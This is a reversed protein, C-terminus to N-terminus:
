LELPRAFIAGTWSKSRGFAESLSGEEITVKMRTKHSSADMFHAIGADDRYVIGTHAIDLGDVSTCAGVIDGTKLLQEVAALKDIPIYTMSRRNIADECIRVLPILEPDAALQKYKDPHASMFGVKQNFPESGPLDSLIKVVGKKQNDYFWDTTYHLRTSYDGQKGDRYRTFRVEKLLDEPSSEGRKIMRALDLTNEFFTVCDLGKLDVTCSESNISHDLTGGVYPTGELEKAVKGMLEGIPLDKWKGARAKDLIRKLVDGGSFTVPASELGLAQPISSIASFSGGFFIALRILDRRSCENLNGLEM